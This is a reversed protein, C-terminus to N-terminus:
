QRGNKRYEKYIQEMVKDVIHTKVDVNVDEYMEYVNEMESEQPMEEPIHDQPAVLMGAGAGVSHDAPKIADVDDELDPLILSRNVGTTAGYAFEKIVSNILDDILYDDTERPPEHPVHMQPAEITGDRYNGPLNPAPAFYGAEDREELKKDPRQGAATGNVHSLNQMNRNLEDQTQNEVAKTAPNLPAALQKKDGIGYPGGRFSPNGNLSSGPAMTEKVFKNEKSNM